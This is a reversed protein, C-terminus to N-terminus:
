PAARSAPVAETEGGEPVHLHGDKDREVIPRRVSPLSAPTTHRLINQQGGDAGTGSTLRVPRYLIKGTAPVGAMMQLLRLGSLTASLGRVVQMYRPLYALAGFMAFGVAFGIGSASTFVRNRFLNLPIVPEAAHRHPERVAAADAEPRPM